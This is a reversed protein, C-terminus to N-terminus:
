LTVVPVYSKTNKFTFMINNDHNNGNANDDKVHKAWRLKLEVKRKILPM